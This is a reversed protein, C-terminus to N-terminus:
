ILANIGYLLNCYMYILLNSIVLWSILVHYIMVFTVYFSYASSSSCCFVAMECGRKWFLMKIQVTRVWIILCM